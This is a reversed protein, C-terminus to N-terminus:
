QVEQNVVEGGVVATHASAEIVAVRQGPQAVIIGMIPHPPCFMRWSSTQPHSTQGAALAWFDPTLKLNM